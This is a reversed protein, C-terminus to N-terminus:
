WVSYLSNYGQFLKKYESYLINITNLNKANPFVFRKLYDLELSVSECLNGDEMKWRFVIHEEELWSETVPNQLALFPRECSGNVIGSLGEGM